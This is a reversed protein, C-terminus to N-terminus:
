MEKLNSELSLRVHRVLAPKSEFWENGDITSTSHAWQVRLVKEGKRPGKTLESAWVEVVSSFSTKFPITISGLEEIARYADYFIM